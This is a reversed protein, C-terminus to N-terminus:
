MLHYIKWCKHTTLTLLMRIQILCTIAFIKSFDVGFIVMLIDPHKNISGNAKLKTHQSRDHTM